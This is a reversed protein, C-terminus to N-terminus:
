SVWIDPRDKWTRKVKEIYGIRERIKAIEKPYFELMTDCLELMWDRRSYGDIINVRNANAIQIQGWGLAGITLCDWSLFEIPVFHVEVNLRTQNVRYQAMLMLFHNIDDEYFRTLRQVSTLNPMSFSADLRQTKVDVVYYLGDPDTFAFDAMSRRAFSPSYEACLNGLLSQFHESLVEQVADGVARPSVATRTSLFDPQANLLQVISSELTKYEDTHFIRSKSM